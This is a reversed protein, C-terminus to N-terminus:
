EAGLFQDLRTVALAAAVQGSAGRLGFRADQRAATGHAMVLLGLASSDIYPVDSLDIVWPGDPARRMAELVELFAGHDAFTFRGRLSVRWGDKGREITYDM